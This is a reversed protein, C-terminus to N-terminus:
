YNGDVVQLCVTPSDPLSARVMDVVRRRDEIWYRICYRTTIEELHQRKLMADKREDFNGRMRLETFPVGYHNLWWFTTDYHCERRGTLVIVTHDRSLAQVLHVINQHPEDTELLSDDLPNRHAPNALTGDVDVVVAPPLSLNQKIPNFVVKSRSIEEQLEQLTKWEKYPYRKWLTRLVDESVSKDRCRDRKILTHLEPTFDVVEVEYGQTECFVILQKLYRSVLNTDSIVIDCGEAAHAAIMSEKIANVATEQETTGLAPFGMLERISDSNVERLNGEQMIRERAYTSKGSAPFGRTITAKM